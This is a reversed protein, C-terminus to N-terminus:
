AFPTTSAALLSRNARLLYLVDIQVELPAVGYEKTYPVSSTSGISIAIGKILTITSLL